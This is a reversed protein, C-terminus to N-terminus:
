QFKGAFGKRAILTKRHLVLDAFFTAFAAVISVSSLFSVCVVRTDEIHEFEMLQFDAVFCVKPRAQALVERIENATIRCDMGCFIAGIKNIAYFLYVAEPIAPLAVSVVDGKGVGMRILAAATRDINEFLKAYSISRDYYQLAPRDMHGCCKDYLFDYVSLGIPTYAPIPSTIPPASVNM